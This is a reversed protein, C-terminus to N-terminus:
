ALQQLFTNLVESYQNNKVQDQSVKLTAVQSCGPTLSNLQNEVSIPPVGGGTIFFAIRKGQLSFQKLYTRVAPTLQGAWVPSGVIIRDYDKPNKVTVIQTTRQGRADRGARMFNVWGM